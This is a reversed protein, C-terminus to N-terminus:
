MSISFARIPNFAAGVLLLAGGAWYAVFVLRAIEVRSVLNREVARALEKASLTIVGIYAAAGVIGLGMRWMWAPQLGRVVVEWDGFGLVASYLPYGSGNMLNLSGFLWFFYEAASFRARRHFLRLAVAGFLVNAISGAAAVIRSNGTTQLAVTSLSLVRVGPVMLAALGHGAVEHVLDCLAYATIAVAAITVINSRPAEREGASGEVM